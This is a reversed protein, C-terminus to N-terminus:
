YSDYVIRNQKTQKTEVSGDIGNLFSQKKRVPTTKVGFFPDCLVPQRELIRFFPCFFMYFGDKAEFFCIWEYSVM